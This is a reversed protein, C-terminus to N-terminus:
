RPHKLLYANCVAGSPMAGDGAPLALLAHASRASLLRSSMQSGTSTAVYKTSGADGVGDNAYALNVRHYEPRAPDLRMERTLAARVITGLAASEPWGALTKAATAVALHFCVFASAPNGPLGIACATGGDPADVTAYTLPKGPKMCVRGFRVKAVEELVPKVVDRSGMSVGGSTLVIDCSAFAAVLAAKVPEYEDRVIGLDVAACWPLTETVAALLMPRNSDVIRGGGGLPGDRASEGADVVEDGTSMVGVVVRRMVSVEYVGCALLIGVEAAGVVDGKRLIVEGEAIDSGVARVDVGPGEVWKSFVVAAQDGDQKGDGGGASAAESYEVMVVADAGDPLPAGTTIYVCELEGVRLSPGGGGALAEGVVRFRVDPAWPAAAAVAYGDKVSARFPPLPAPARVDAALTRHLALAPALTETTAVPNLTAHITQLADDMAIMPYASTRPVATTAMAGRSPHAHADSRSSAEVVQQRRVVSDELTDISQSQVHQM